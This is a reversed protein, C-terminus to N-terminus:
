KFIHKKIYDRARIENETGANKMNPIHKWIILAAAIATVAFTAKSRTEITTILSFFVAGSCPLMFGYNFTLMLVLGIGLLILLLIWDYALVMGALTAVGKGGRFKMYFPFIHGIVACGSALLGAIPINPALADPALFEALQFAAFSKGIDFIMVLIGLTRGYVMTVNTAGLNGTGKRRLDDKKIKAILASPSLTGMVYGMLMCLFVKLETERM